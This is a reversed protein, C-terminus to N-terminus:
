VRWAKRKGNEEILSDKFKILLDVEVIHEIFVIIYITAKPKLITVGFPPSTLLMM